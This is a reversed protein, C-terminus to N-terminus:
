VTVDRGFTYQHFKELGFVVSLLDKEIQAYQTETDTLAHNAFAVPRGKQQVTGLGTESADCQVILSQNSDFYSLM